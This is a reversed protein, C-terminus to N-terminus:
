KGEMHSAHLVNFKWTIGSIKFFQQVQGNEIKEIDIDMEESAGIFTKETNSHILKM